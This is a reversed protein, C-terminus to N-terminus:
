ERERRTSAGARLAELMVKGGMRGDGALVPLGQSSGQMWEDLGIRAIRIHSDAHYGDTPRSAKLVGSQIARRIKRTSCDCYRAATEISMWEPWPGVLASLKEEIAELHELIIEADTM